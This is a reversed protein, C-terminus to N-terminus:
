KPCRGADNPGINPFLGFFAKTPRPLGQGSGKGLCLLRFRLRHAVIYVIRALRHASIYVIHALRHAGIYVISRFKFFVSFPRPLGQLSGEWPWPGNWVFYVFAVFYVFLSASIYAIRIVNRCQKSQFKFFLCFLDQFAKRQTPRARVGGL